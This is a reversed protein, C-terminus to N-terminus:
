TAGPVSAGDLVLDVTLTAPLRGEAEATMGGALRLEVDGGAASPDGVLDLRVDITMRCAGDSCSFDARALLECPAFCSRPGDVTTATVRVAPGRLVDPAGGAGGPDEAFSPVAANLGIRLGGTPVGTADLRVQGEIHARDAPMTVEWSTWSANAAVAHPEPFSNRLQFYVWTVLLAALVGLVLAVKGVFRLVGGMTMGSRPAPPAPGAAPLQEGTM